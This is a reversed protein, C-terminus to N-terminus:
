GTKIALLLGDRIPLMLQEVRTDHRVMQNFRHLAEAEADGNPDLVKGSWLVNDALLLGGPRLLEIVLEYFEPYTQKAADLFVLDFPGEITPILTEAQGIHLQVRDKLGAKALYKEILFALEPNAEITHLRGGEALGSALCIASYGTFTGVELINKPKALSSLLYLLQGQLKGSLMQPAITKLHTERELEELVPHPLGSMRSCYGEIDRPLHIM